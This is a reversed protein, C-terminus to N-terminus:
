RRAWAPDFGEGPSLRRPTASGDVSIIWVAEEGDRNSAVAIQTSDPSWAPRFNTTGAFTIQRQNSGDPNMVWVHYVSGSKREFAIMTGDPSWAPTSNLDGGSRTLRTLTAGDPRIKYIDMRDGRHSEFVLWNGDPSWKPDDDWNGPNFTARQANSGDANMVYIERDGDRDTVFAIRAGDPSWAPEYNNYAGSTLQRLDQGEIDLTYIQWTGSADSRFLIRQGDPSWAPVGSNAPQGPLRWTEGTAPDALYIQWAGQPGAAYAILASQETPVPTPTPSPLPTSTPPLPTPTTVADASMSETTAPMITTPSPTVESAQRLLPPVILALAGTVALLLALVFCGVGWVARPLGPWRSPVAQQEPPMRQTAQPATQYPGASISASGSLADRMETASHFRAAPQLEMARDVTTKMSASVDPRAADLPTLAQPNVIRMTATPPAQGALAHYLTAGLSYIDTRPDTHGLAADYQEPPAYEPTGMAQIATRTRPNNPDWLKVLGFDVLVANGDPTIIVNQPKIDRHLIGQSHCYVLADLLQLAWARVPEEPLAGERAIREALSEGKVLKMVLYANPGEKFYDTVNVLHPHDLRALVKAEQTFQERLHTLTKSDLGPQPIMEKLAVPIDLRLDWARYVAGMGGEGLSGEVRYRNQLVQGTTLPM